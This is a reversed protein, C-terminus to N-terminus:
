CAFRRKIMRCAIRLVVALGAGFMIGLKREREPLSRVALAIVVANDGALVLDIIVITLVSLLFETNFDM